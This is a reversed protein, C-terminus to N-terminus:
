DTKIKKTLEIKIPCEAMNALVQGAALCGCLRKSAGRVILLVPSLVAFAFALLSMSRPLSLKILSPFLFFVITVFVIV